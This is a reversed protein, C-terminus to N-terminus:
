KCIGSSWARGMVSSTAYDAVGKENMPVFVEYVQDIDAETPAAGRVRAWEASLRPATIMAKIHDRKPAGMPTRAEAITADIGFQRFAAVFVGMPAFSGFDITTGAWDFVVANFRSM